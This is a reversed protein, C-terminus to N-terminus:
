EGVDKTVNDTAAGEQTEDSSEAEDVDVDVDDGDEEDDDEAEDDDEFPLPDKVPYRDMDTAADRCLRRIDPHIGPSERQVVGASADLSRVANVPLNGIQRLADLARHLTRVLDGPALGSMELAENWTCGATWATVVECTALEVQVKSTSDDVSFKNQVETLRELSLLSSQVVRQQASSLQQFAALVSINGGRNSDAVLCAVYGAIESPELNRLQDTLTSAEIQPLSVTDVNKVEEDIEDEPFNVSTDDEFLGLDDELLMSADYSDLKNMEIKFKDLETSAGVVDWAGGMATLFWLANDLGLLGVNEGATTIRYSQASLDDIGNDNTQVICGYAKLVGILATLDELSDDKEEVANLHVLLSSNDIGSSKAANNQKRRQRNMTVASKSFTTLEMPTVNSGPEIDPTNKRSFALATQLDETGPRSSKLLTNAEVAMATMIHNAADDRAKRIRKRQTDMDAEINMNDESLLEAMGDTDLDSDLSQMTVLEKQLYALTSEELNLIQYLGAFSKSAKKLLAKDELVEFIRRHKGKDILSMLSDLFQEHAAAEVMEEFDEGHLQKATEVQNEVQQRTWMAFSKQVLKQAVDLKGGGRAILNVALSYGPSFQSEVPKIENTLIQIAEEAGEFPTTMLVCTGDTDM